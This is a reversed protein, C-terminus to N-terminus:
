ECRDGYHRVFILYDGFGITGNGNLDYMPDYRPDGESLGYHSIFLLFDTFNVVCDGNFDGILPEPPILTISGNQTITQPDRNNLIAETLVLPTVQGDQASDSVIFEIKLFVGSGSPIRRATAVAIDILGVTDQSGEVFGVRHSESWRHTLTRSVFVRRATVIRADYTILFDASSIRLGTVDSIELPVWIREGHVATVDPLSLRVPIQSQQASPVRVPLVSLLGFLLVIFSESVRSM